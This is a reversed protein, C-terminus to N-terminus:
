PKRIKSNEWEKQPPMGVRVYEEWEQEWVKMGTQRKFFYSTGHNTKSIERTWGQPFHAVPIRIDRTDSVELGVRCM